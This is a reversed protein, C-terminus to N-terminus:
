GTCGYGYGYGISVGSLSLLTSTSKRKLSTAVHKFIKKEYTLKLIRHKTVRAIYPVASILSRPMESEFSQFTSGGGGEKEVVCVCM